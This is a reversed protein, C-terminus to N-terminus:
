SEVGLGKPRPYRLPFTVTEEGDRYEACAILDGYADVEYRITVERSPGSDVRVPLTALESEMTQTSQLKASPRRVLSFNVLFPPPSPALFVRTRETTPYIAGAGVLQQDGLGPVRLLYDVTLVKRIRTSASAVAGRSISTLRGEDSIIRDAGFMRTLLSRLPPLFSSGGVLYVRDIDDEELQAERIVRSCLSELKEFAPRLTKALDPRSLVLREGPALAEPCAIPFDPRASSWKASLEEKTKRIAELLHQSRLRRKGPFDDPPTLQGTSGVQQLWLLRRLSEKSEDSLSSTIADYLMVDFLNGGIMEGAEGLIDFQRYFFGEEPDRDLRVKLLSVDTTGAGCDFVLIRKGEVMEPDEAAYLYSVATPEVLITVEAFGLRQLIRTMVATTHARAQPSTGAPITLVLRVDSTEVGRGVYKEFDPSERTKRFLRRLFGAVLAHLDHKTREGTSSDLVEVWELDSGLLSKLNRLYNPEGRYDGAEEGIIMRGDPFLYLHSPFLENGDLSVQQIEGDGLLAVKSTSTGFDVGIVPLEVRPHQLEFAVQFRFELDEQESKASLSFEHRTEVELDLLLLDAGVSAIEGPGLVLRSNHLRLCRHHSSLTLHLNSHGGNGLRFLQTVAMKGVQSLRGLNRYSRDAVLFPPSLKELELTLRTTDWCWRDWLWESNRRDGQRTTHRLLVSASHHDGEPIRAGYVLFRQQTERGM